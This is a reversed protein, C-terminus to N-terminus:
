VKQYRSVFEFFQDIKKTHDGLVLIHHNAISQELFYSVPKEIKIEIQTRCALSISTNNLITGKTLWWNSLDKGGIKLITVDQPTKFRGRIAVSKDTEFHTTISYEDLLQLAVTCHALTVTNKQTNVSIVNAMFTPQNTLLKLLLMTFTSPIDGECGAVLGQDNLHSLAYCATIDTELVFSFCEVSIADFQNKKALQQLREVVKVAEIIREKDVENSTANELFKDSMRHINDTIENDPIDYLESVPIHGITIGWMEKVVEEDVKSAILWESPTGIVGIRCKSLKNMIDTFENWQKIMFALEDLTGHIIQANQGGDELCGRTEMAAPLSNNLDYSLLIIPSKLKVKNVFSAIANETGGTGVFLFFLENTEQPHYNSLYDEETVKQEKNVQM